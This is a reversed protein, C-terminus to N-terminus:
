AGVSKGDGLPKALAQLADLAVVRDDFPLRSTGILQHTEHGKGCLVVVDAATSAQIALFIAERRDQAVAYVGSRAALVAPHPSVRQMSAQAMGAEIQTIIDATPESRSNDSTVIVVDSHTAAALGMAPRKGRDRDGGCGFVCLVRGGPAPRAASLAQTIAEPTHAYDVYVRRGFAGGIDQLRGPVARLQRLGAAIAGPRVQMVVAVATAALLNLLNFRGLLPSELDFPGAPTEVRARIGRATLEISSATVDTHQTLGYGLTPFSASRRLEVGVPDDLNFVGGETVEYDTFLRRKAALYENMGGHFDLHERSFNTFGVAEWRCADTRRQALAHSTVEMVVAQMGAAAMDHLLAGLEHAQPCTSPAALEISGYRHGITGLRGAPIQAAALISELAYVTTTKGCTGTIGALRMRRSPNRYFRQSAVALALRVDRVQVYRAAAESARHAGVAVSAGRRLASAVFAHGDTRAGPLCFFADGPRAARSDACLGGVELDLTAGPAVPSLGQLLERLKVPQAYAM